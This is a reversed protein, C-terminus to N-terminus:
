LCNLHWCVTRLNEMYSLAVKEFEIVIVTILLYSLRAATSMEVTNAHKGHQKDLPVRFRYEKSIFRVMNKSTRLKPFVNAILTM